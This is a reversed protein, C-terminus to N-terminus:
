IELMEDWVVLVPMWSLFRYCVWRAPRFLRFWILLLINRQALSIANAAVVDVVVCVCVHIQFQTWNVAIVFGESVPFLRCLIHLMVLFALRLCVASPSAPLSPPLSFSSPVSCFHANGTASFKTLLQLQKFSLSLFGSLEPETVHRFHQKSMKTEAFSPKANQLKLPEFCYLYCRSQIGSVASPPPHETLLSLDAGLSALIILETNELVFYGSARKSKESWWFCM